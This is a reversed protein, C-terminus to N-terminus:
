LVLLDPRRHTHGELTVEVCPWAGTATLVEAPGDVVLLTDESKFGAISPNWAYAQGLRVTSQVRQNVVLERNEYGALGGQHHDRWEHGFGQAAYAELIADFVDALPNGAWSADHAVADIQATADARRRLDDSVPGVHVLRTASAVLGHRRACLVLMVCRHFPTAGPPPHRFRRIRDDAAVLIVVPEAGRAWTEASLRGAIERETMGPVAARAAAEIAAGADRGLARFRAQEEKTLDARLTAVEEAMLRAGEAPVDAALPGETLSAFLADRRMPAYWPFELPELPLPGLEEALLRPMEIRDAILYSRRPTFLLAAFASEANTAVNASRGCTAWSWSSSRCLLLGGLGHTAMFDAIRGRKETFERLPM